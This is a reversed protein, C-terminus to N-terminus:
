KLKKNKHKKKERKGNKKKNKKIGSRERHVTRTWASWSSISRDGIVRGGIFALSSRPWRKTVAM